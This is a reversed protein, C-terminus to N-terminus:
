RLAITVKDSTTIGGIQIQLPVADGTATGQPVVVNIQNVGVFQPSLGSFLVQAPVGGIPVQPSTNTSRLGDSASGPQDNGVRQRWRVHEVSSPCQDSERDCFATPGPDRQVDGFCKRPCQAAPGHLSSGAAWGAGFRLYLGVIRTCRKAHNILWQGTGSRESATGALERRFQRCGSHNSFLHQRPCQLSQGDLHSERIDGQEYGLQVSVPSTDDYGPSHPRQLTHKRRCAIFVALLRPWHADLRWASM